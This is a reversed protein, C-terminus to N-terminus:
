VDTPEPRQDDWTSRASKIIDPTIEVFSRRIKQQRDYAKQAAKDAKIAEALLAPYNADRLRVSMSNGNQLNTLYEVTVDGNPTRLYFRQPDYAFIEADTRHAFRYSKIAVPIPEDLRRIGTERQEILHLLIRLNGAYIADGPRKYNVARFGDAQATPDYSLAWGLHFSPEISVSHSM